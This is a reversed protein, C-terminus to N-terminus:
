SKIGLLLAILESKSQVEAKVFINKLHFRITNISVFTEDAIQQYTHGKCLARCIKKEQKTLEQTVSDFTVQVQQNKFIDLAVQVTTVLTAEQFPKVLYGYPGQERAEALTKEDSFSTM